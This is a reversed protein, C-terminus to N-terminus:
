IILDSIFFICQRSVDKEVPIVKVLKCKEKVFALLDVSSRFSDRYESRKCQLQEYLKILVVDHEMEGRDNEAWILRPTCAAAARTAAVLLTTVRM